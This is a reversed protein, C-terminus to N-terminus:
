HTGKELERSLRVRDSIDDVDPIGTTDKKKRKGFLLAIVYIFLFYTVLCVIILPIFWDDM